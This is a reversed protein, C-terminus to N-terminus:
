QGTKLKRPQQPITAAVTSVTFRATRALQIREGAKGLVIIRLRCQKSNVAPVTWEVAKGNVKGAALVRWTRGNDDSFDLEVTRGARIGRPLWGLTRGAGGRLLEGAKPWGPQPDAAGTGKVLALKGSPLSSSSPFFGKISLTRTIGIGVNGAKDVARVRFKISGVVAAEAPIVIRKIGESTIAEPAQKWSANYPFTASCVVWSISDPVLNPDSVKWRLRISEGIDAKESVRPVKKQGLSAPPSAGLPYWGPASGGEVYKEVTVEVAPARTDVVYIRHPSGPPVDSVGQAPGVFRIWQPGDGDAKFCFHSQELGYYGKRHWQRTQDNTTWIALRPAGRTQAGGPHRIFFYPTPSYYVDIGNGLTEIVPLDEVPRYYFPADFAWAPYETEPNWNKNTDKPQCGSALAALMMVWATERM